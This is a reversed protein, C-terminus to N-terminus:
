VAEKLLLVRSKHPKRVNELNKEQPAEAQFSLGTGGLRLKCLHWLSWAGAAGEM